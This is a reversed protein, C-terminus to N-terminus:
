VNIVLLFLQYLARTPRRFVQRITWFLRAGGERGRGFREPSPIPRDGFDDDDVATAMAITSRTHWISAITKKRSLSAPRALHLILDRQM